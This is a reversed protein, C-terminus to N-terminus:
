PADRRMYLLRESHHAVSLYIILPKAPSNTLRAPSVSIPKCIYYYPHNLPTPACTSIFCPIPLFCNNTQSHAPRSMASKLLRSSRTSYSPMLVFLHLSFVCLFTNPVSLIITLVDLCFRQPFGDTHPHLLIVGLQFSPTAAICLAGSSGFLTSIINHM